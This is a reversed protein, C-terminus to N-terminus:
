YPTRAVVSWVFVTCAAVGFTQLIRKFDIKRDVSLDDLLYKRKLIDMLIEENRLRRKM